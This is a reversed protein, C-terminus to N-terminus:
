HFCFLVFSLLHLCIVFRYQFSLSSLLFEHWFALLRWFSFLPFHVPVLMQRAHSKWRECSSKCSKSARQSATQWSGHLNLFVMLMWVNFNIKKFFLSFLLSQEVYLKCLCCGIIKWKNCHTLGLMAWRPMKDMIWSRSSKKWSLFWGLKVKNTM